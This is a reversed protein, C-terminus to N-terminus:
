FRDLVSIINNFEEISLNRNEQGTEESYLNEKIYLIKEKIKILDERTSDLNASFIMEDVQYAGLNILDFFGDNINDKLLRDATRLAVYVKKFERSLKALQENSVEEQELVSELRHSLSRNIFYFENLFGEFGRRNHIKENVLMLSTITLAIILVICIISLNNKTWKRFQKM